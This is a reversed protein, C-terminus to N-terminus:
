FTLATFLAMIAIFLSFIMVYAMNLLLFKVITKFRRQLYFRRMSKYLYFLVGLFFLSFLQGERDPGLVHGLLFFISAILFAFAHYHFSFVLHEVYYRERRIYLLKLILALAPMMLVAMWILKGVLYRAFNGGEQNLKAIQRFVLRQWFGEVGYYDALGNPPMEMLDYAAVRVNQTKFGGDGEWVVYMLNQSDRPAEEIRANLSDLAASAAPEDPFLAAVEQRATDFEAHFIGFYADSRSAELSEKLSEELADLTLFGLVAFHAVAMVFFLRLPPVYRKQQGRFYASTLRGPLFLAGLTRFIKSDINLVSELFDRILEWFSVKGDTYKQSCNACYQGYAPLPYYCNPCYRTPTDEEM